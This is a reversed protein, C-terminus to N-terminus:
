NVTEPRRGDVAAMWQWLVEGDPLEHGGARLHDLFEHLGIPGVIQWLQGRPLYRGGALNRRCYVIAVSGHTPHKGLLARAEAITDPHLSPPQPLNVGSVPLEATPHNM